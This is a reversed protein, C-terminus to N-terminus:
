KLKSQLSEAKLTYVSNLEAKLTEASSDNNQIAILFKLWNSEEVYYDDSWKFNYLIQKAEDFKNLAFYMSAKYFQDKETLGESPLKNLVEQFQKANIEKVYTDVTNIEAGRSKNIAPFSYAEALLASTNLNSTNMFNFGIISLLAIVSAAAMWQWVAITKINAGTSVSASQQGTLMNRTSEEYLIEKIVEINDKNEM